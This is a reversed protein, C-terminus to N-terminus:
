NQHNCKTTVVIERLKGIEVTIERLAQHGSNAIEKSQADRSKLYEIQEAIAKQHGLDKEKLHELFTNRSREDDAQKQKLFWLFMGCVTIAGVTQVLLSSWDM